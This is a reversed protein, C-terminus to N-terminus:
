RYTKYYTLVHLPSHSSTVHVWAITHNSPETPPESNTTVIHHLSPLSITNFFAPSQTYEWGHGMTVVYTTQSLRHYELSIDQHYKMSKSQQIFEAEKEQRVRTRHWPKHQMNTTHSKRAPNEHNKHPRQSIQNHSNISKRQMVKTHSKRIPTWM